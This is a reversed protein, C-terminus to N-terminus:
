LPITMNVTRSERSRECEDCQTSSERSSINSALMDHETDSMGYPAELRDPSVGDPAQGVMISLRAIRMLIGVMHQMFMELIASAERTYM